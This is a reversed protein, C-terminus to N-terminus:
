FYWNMKLMLKIKKNGIVENNNDDDDDDYDDSDTESDDEVDLKILNFESKCNNFNIIVKM